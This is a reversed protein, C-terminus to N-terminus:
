TPRSAPSSADLSAVIRVIDPFREVFADVELGLFDQRQRLGSELSAIFHLGAQHAATADGVSDGVYVCQAPQLATDKLLGDFARPDPKHYQMTDRYYFAQVRAALLHDPELLHRLETHTRSTLVMITKGQQIFEDLAAYNEKPIADLKGSRTFEEILPHYATKFAEVDVGPSRTVIAEFLPRGWTQVHVDRPMASRGIHKLTENELEFSVAETMCLTGDLDIVIAEIM